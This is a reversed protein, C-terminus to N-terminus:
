PTSINGTSSPSSTKINKMLSKKRTFFDNIAASAEEFDDEYIEGEVPQTFIINLLIAMKEEALFSILSNRGNNMDMASILKLIAGWDKISYKEKLYYDKGNISYKRQKM